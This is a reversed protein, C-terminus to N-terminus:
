CALTGKMLRVHRRNLSRLQQVIGFFLLVRRRIERAISQELHDALKLLTFEEAPIGLTKGLDGTLYKLENELNRLRCNFGAEIKQYERIEGAKGKFFLATKRRAHQTLNRYLLIEQGIIGFLRCIREDM